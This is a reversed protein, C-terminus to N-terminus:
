DLNGQADGLLAGDKPDRLWAGIDQGLAKTCRGIISCTGKFAGFAGGTSFRKARFRSVSRGNKKLTGKVTMWKPGSFAGGGSAHVETIEMALVTGASGPAGEVLEVEANSDALFSALKEGLKCQERVQERVTASKAFPVPSQVKVTGAGAPLALLAAGLFAQLALRQGGLRRRHARLGRASIAFGQM